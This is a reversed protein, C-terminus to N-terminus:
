QRSRLSADIVHTGNDDTSEGGMSETTGQGSQALWKRTRTIPSGGIASQTATEHDQTTRSLSVPM